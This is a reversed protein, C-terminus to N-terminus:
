NCVSFFLGEKIKLATTTLLCSVSIVKKMQAANQSVLQMKEREENELHKVPDHVVLPKKEGTVCLDSPVVLMSDLQLGLVVVKGHVAHYSLTKTETACTCQLGFSNNNSDSVTVLSPRVGGCVCVHAEQKEYDKEWVM